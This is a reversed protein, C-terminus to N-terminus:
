IIFFYCNLIENGSMKEDCEIVLKEALGLPMAKWGELIAKKLSKINTISAKQRWCYRALESWVLEISSIDLSQASWEELVDILEHELLWSRVFDGSADTNKPIALVDAFVCSSCLYAYLEEPQSQIPPVEM